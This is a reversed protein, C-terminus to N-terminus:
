VEQMRLIMSIFALSSNVNNKLTNRTEEVVRIMDNLKSASFINALDKIEPGKDSNILLGEDGIEKYIIVDRIVTIIIDIIDDEMSNYTLFFKEYNLSVEGDINNLNSIMKFITSRIVDFDKNKLLKEVQGPVGKSFAKLLKVEEESTQPFKEIIFLSMEDDTLSRLKHISCRSKITDLVKDLEECLIFIFVNNPPEEITKLFANQAQFTISDGNKIIIVKKDGEFPKKNCEEIISRITNVGISSKGKDLDWHIIDVHDKPQNLGLIRAALEDALISKGIGNEGVLIHAHAFKNTDIAEILKEKLKGHGIM